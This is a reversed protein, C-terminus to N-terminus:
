SNTYIVLIFMLDTKPSNESLILYSRFFSGVLRLQRPEEKRGM